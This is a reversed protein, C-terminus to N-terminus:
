RHLTSSSRAAWILVVEASPSESGRYSDQAGVFGWLPPFYAQHTRPSLDDSSWGCDTETFAENKQNLRLNGYGRLLEAERRLVNGTERKEGSVPALGVWALRLFDLYAQTNHYGTFQVKFMQLWRIVTEQEHHIFKVPTHLGM